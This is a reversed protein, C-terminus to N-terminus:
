GVEVTRKQWKRLTLWLLVSVFALGILTDTTLGFFSKMHLNERPLIVLLALRFIVVALALTTWWAIGYRVVLLWKPLERYMLAYGLVTGVIMPLSFISLAILTIIFATTVSAFHDARIRQAVLGAREAQPISELGGYLQNALNIESNDTDEAPWVAQTLIEIVNDNYNDASQLIIMWGLFCFSILSVFFAIVLGSVFARSFSTPKSLLANVLGVSPWMLLLSLFATASLWPPFVISFLFPKQEDPFHSYVDAVNESLFEVIVPGCLLFSALMAFVTYVLRQNHRLWNIVLARISPPKVSIPKGVMWDKLDNALEQASSYRDTPERAMCKLCVLELDRNVNPNIKSPTSPPGEIVQMVVSVASEGQYPPCGALLEYLIAGLSYIDAATTVSQGSAQEPPMYSPTGLVAGTHTLDSGGSTSKALGLDTVYPEGYKDLLINAPKLDRHLIGRQHAHHVGEAVGIMVAVAERIRGSYDRSRDALSGGDVYKMAFYPQGEHDGIEYIPVIAPHDLKAASEAELQFRQREQESSFSGGLVMKVAALRNLNRHKAKYVVGMGGRAIEELLDYDGVQKATTPDPSSQNPVSTALESSDRVPALTQSDDPLNQANSGTSNELEESVDQCRKRPDKNKMGVNYGLTHNKGGVQISSNSQQYRESSLSYQSNSIM